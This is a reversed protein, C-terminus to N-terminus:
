LHEVLQRVGDRVFDLQQEESLWASTSGQDTKTVLLVEDVAEAVPYLHSIVAILQDRDASNRLVALTEDLRESDLSAFGEDLFLSEVRQHGQSHLEVLALALALSAQFTEGGSLTEPDRVLNTPRDLIQFNEAFAYDGGSLEQLIRSGLILLARTRRNTLYTLFNGDTLLGSVTKWVTIQQEAAEKAQDLAEAYPIQSRVTRLEVMATDHATEAASTKRSLPDLAAPVLLDGDPPLPFGPDPDADTADAGAQALLEEKFARSVEAAQRRSQKLDEALRRSLTTLAAAYADAAALDSGDPVPPLGGPLDKGLIDAAHTTADAWRELQHALKRVPAHVSRQRRDELARQEAVNTALAERTQEHGASIKQLQALRQTVKQHSRAIDLAGPLEPPSAQVPQVLAPLGAIQGVLNQLDSEHQAVANDLRKRERQLRSRRRKLEARAAENEARLAAAKERAQTFVAIAEAEVVTRLPKVLERIISTLQARSVPEQESVARARALTEQGMAALAASPAAACHSRLAEILDHVRRLSADLREGVALREPRHRELAKEATSLASTAEALASVGKNLAAARTGVTRKARELAKADM